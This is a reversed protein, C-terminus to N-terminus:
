LWLFGQWLRLHEFVIERRSENDGVVGGMRGRWRRTISCAATVSTCDLDFRGRKFVQKASLDIVSSYFGWNSLFDPAPTLIGAPKRWDSLAAAANWVQVSECRDASRILLWSGWEVMFVWRRLHTAPIYSWVTAHKFPEFVYLLLWRTSKKKKKKQLALHTAVTRAESCNEWGSSDSPPRCFSLRLRWLRWCLGSWQAPFTYSVM